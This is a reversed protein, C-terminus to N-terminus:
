LAALRVSFVSGRGTTAMTSALAVNKAPRPRRRTKSGAQLASAARRKVSSVQRVATSVIWASKVDMLILTDEWRALFASSSDPRLSHEAWRVSKALSLGPRMSSDERHALSVAPNDKQCTAFCLFFLWVESDSFIAKWCCIFFAGRACVCMGEQDIYKGSECDTCIFANAASYTGRPCSKCQDLGEVDAFSGAPCQVCESSDLNSSFRGRGCNQCTIARQGSFTGPLCSSCSSFGPIPTYRGSDCQICAVQGNSSSRTGAPCSKCETANTQDQPLLRCSM